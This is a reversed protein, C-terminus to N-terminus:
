KTPEPHAPVIHAENKSNYHITGRSTTTRTGDQAVHTGIEEGFDVVEKTGHRVGSGAGKNLLAQPDPHTLESKGPKFNNHGPTHKGQQGRHITPAKKAACDNNHSWIEASSVRYAHERAVEMNYVTREGPVREVSSVPVSGGDTRLEDGVGIESASLWGRDEVYLRHGPTLVLPETEGSVRISLLERAVHNVTTIVLCGPGAMAESIESIATVTGWGSLGLEPLDLWTRDGEGSIAAETLWERTRLAEVRLVNWPASPNPLVLSVVLAEPPLADADCEENGAEVRDGVQLQEIPILGSRTSVLTGAVFCWGGAARPAKSRPVRGKLQKGAGVGGMVTATTTMATTIPKLALRGAEYDNSAFAAKAFDNGFNAVNEVATITGKVAQISRDVLVTKAYEVLRGESILIVDSKVTEVYEHAATKLSQIAEHGIGSLFEGFTLGNPDSNDIPDGGAYAYAFLRAPEGITQEPAFLALPDVALFAGLEPRYPRAGFDSLGSGRDEENGVYGFPDSHEGSQQRVHGYPHYLSRSKVAGTSKTIVLPSSQADLLYFETDAPVDAIEVSEDRALQTLPRNSGSGGCAMFVIATVTATLLATKPVGLRWRTRLQRMVMSCAMVLMAAVTSWLVRSPVVFTSLAGNGTSGTSTATVPATRKGVDVADLRALRSNGLFVYRVIASDREEIDEAIYRVRETKGNAKTTKLARTDDYAYAYTETTEGRNVEILRGKADWKLQRVGDSTVRGAADYELKEDGHSTLQDPRAAGEGYKNEVNLHPEDFTSSISTIKALDDLEFRTTGAAYEAQRLRYRDDYVYSASLSESDPINKRLDEIGVIRSTADLTLELGRLMVGDAGEASMSVLRQRADYARTDTVGNGFTVSSLGGNPAWVFSSAISGVKSLLGRSDYAVTMYTKNPYGRRVVRDQADYDTWDHHVTGDSWKRVSDTVRGREDYGFYKTGVADEVWALQGKLNSLGEFEKAPTDYYYRSVVNEDTKAVRHREETVRGFADYEYSIVKGDPGTRSAVDNGLTYTLTWVGANPDDIRVRRSRGDYAYYRNRGLADVVHRLDGVASYDYQAALIEREGERELVSVIRGLGDRSITTPTGFHPSAEDVDNEDWFTTTLPGYETRSTAGDPHRVSSIRGIADRKSVTGAFTASDTPIAISSTSTAYATFEPNGRADFRSYGSLIWTGTDSGESFIARERGLGDVVVVKEQTEAEGSRERITTRVQSLPALMEYSFKLTPNEESDGPKILSAVRGLVDYIVRTEHGNPETLARLGGFLEDYTANWELYNSDDKYRRERKLFEGTEDYVLTSRSGHADVVAVVNGHEDHDYKAEDSFTSDLIWSEVRRLDGRSVEGLPLGEFADGDYYKRRMSVRSGGGDLVAESALVGLIWDEENNAYVSEVIAEDGESNIDGWKTERTVSGFEDYDWTTKTARALASAKGEIIQTEEASKYGFEVISGDLATLLTKTEYSFVSKFFEFGAEDTKSTATPVGRLTRHDIGTDYSTHTVLTPTSDDGLEREVSNGFGAFCREKPDWTGNGYEVTSVLKPDDLSSDVEIRTVVPIGTNMRSTWPTNQARAKAAFTAATAYEIRTVRGLGNDVKSLLGARGNPFLELYRWAGTVAGTVDVWLIDTSGSGNMDIFDVHGTSTNEPMGSITTPTGFRGVGVGLAYSISSVGVHVMDLWGDGDLDVLKWPANTEFVPVNSAEVAAEFKGRGRGLWYTLAGSRLYCLDQVQDGNIDCLSTHGDSFRLDQRDDVVGVNSPATWDKGSLNYGISLGTSATVVVDTRRDGDMDALRVDADEFSVNPVTSVSVSAEFGKEDRGPFYRLSNIGSKVVLDLSGNGDLDALQVGTSGLTASPSSSASWDMPANWSMGDHNVYSRYAGSEGVLLDPLSDGNLDALTVSPERPSRGPPTQMTTLGRSSPKAMATYEFSLPPLATKDDSGVMAVNVLRGHESNSYTLTYKRVLKGGRTVSVNSIRTDLEQRIGASFRLVVDHRSEYEFAMELRAGDFLENWVVKALKAWGGTTDWEYRIVHGHLDYQEHLLYTVTKGHEAEVYGEGGFRYTVGGKSRVEWTGGDSARKVRVFAGTEDKFRFTDNSVEVLDSTSGFGALEFRDSEDFLPIGEDTGRRIRPIGVLSWGMGVEGDGGGGDYSLSISPGFGAIAPPVAFDIGYSATGTAPSAEFKRGLGEISGPGKPLSLRTADVVSANAFSSIVFILSFYRAFQLLTKVKRTM